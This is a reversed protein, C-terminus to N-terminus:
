HGGDRTKRGFDCRGRHTCKGCLALHAPDRPVLRGDLLDQRRDALKRVEDTSMLKVRMLTRGSNSEVVVFAVPAVAEGTEGSLALRQASLEIVDSLYVRDEARTKLEVLTIVGRPSRYARDVRAVIPRSGESRFTREVYALSADGLEKPLWNNTHQSRWRARLAAVVLVVVGAAIIFESPWLEDM